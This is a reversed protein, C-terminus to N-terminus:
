RLLLLKTTTTTGNTRLQAFYTGSPMSDANWKLDYTGSISNQNLLTEIQRGLANFIQLQVHASKELTFRINAVSNFPNPYVSLSFDRSAESLDAVANVGLESMNLYCTGVSTTFWIRGSPPHAVQGFLVPDGYGHPGEFPTNIWSEGDNQTVWLSRLGTYAVIIPPWAENIFSLSPAYQGESFLSQCVRWEGDALHWVSTSDSGNERSIAFLEQHRPYLHLYAVSHPNPHHLDQWTEGFNDTSYLVAGSPSDFASFYFTNGEAAVVVNGWPGEPVDNAQWTLGTDLSVYLSDETDSYAAIALGDATTLYVARGLAFPVQPQYTWTEGLTSTKAIQSVDNAEGIRTSYVPMILDNNALRYPHKYYTSSDPKFPALIDQWQLYPPELLGMRFVQRSLVADGAQLVEGYTGIPPSSHAQWTAGHDFSEYLGHGSLTIVIAADPAPQIIHNIGHYGPPLGAEVKSWSLGFNESRYLGDGALGALLLMGPALPDEHLLYPFLDRPVGNTTDVPSWHVGDDTSEMWWQDLLPNDMSGTMLLLKGNSLRVVNRCFGFDEGFEGNFDVAQEWTEGRDISKLLGGQLAPPNAFLIGGYAWLVSDYLADQYFGDLGRTFIPFEEWSDGGDDSRAFRNVLFQGVGLSYIREHNSFDYLVHEPWFTASETEFLTFSGGGDTTQYILPLDSFDESFVTVFCSDANADVQTLRVLHANVPEPILHRINSWAGNEQKLFGGFATVCLANPSNHSVAVSLIDPATQTLLELDAIASGTIFLLCCIYSAISIRM